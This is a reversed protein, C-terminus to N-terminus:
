GYISLAFLALFLIGAVVATKTLDRYLLPIDVHTFSPTKSALLVPEQKRNKSYKKSM